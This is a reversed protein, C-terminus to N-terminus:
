NRINNLIIIDKFKKTRGKLNFIETYIIYMGLPSKQSNDGYGDWKFKNSIGLVENKVLYKVKRGSIDYVTINAVYGQEKMNLQVFAFDNSGDNDPSFIKPSVIVEGEAQLDARFQSNQYGPSGYGSSSSASAWNNKDQTPSEYNIRELAIGSADSILAFHWNVNYNLEDIIASDEKRLLIVTGEDDPFSPLSSIQCFVASLGATYNQKLWKENSTIVFYSRPEVLLKNKSIVKVSSIDNTSNRNAILVQSLDITKASRNFGEVYDYGDKAPNFLIENIVIDGPFPDQANSVSSCFVPLM